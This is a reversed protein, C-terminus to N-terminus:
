TKMYIITRIFIKTGRLSHESGRSFFSLDTLKFRARIIGLKRELSQSHPFSFSFKVLSMNHSLKCLFSFVQDPSEQSLFKSCQVDNAEKGHAELLVHRCSFVLAHRLCPRVQATSPLATFAVKPRSPGPSAM